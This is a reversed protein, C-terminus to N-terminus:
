ADILLKWIQSGLRIGREQWDRAFHNSTFVKVSPAESIWHGGVYFKANGTTNKGREYRLASGSIDGIAFGINLVGQIYGGSQHAPESCGRGPLRM